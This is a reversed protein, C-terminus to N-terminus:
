THYQAFSQDHNYNVSVKQSAAVTSVLCVAVAIAATNIKM